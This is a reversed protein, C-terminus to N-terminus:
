EQDHEVASLARDAASQAQNLRQCGDLDRDADPNVAALHLQGCFVDAAHSDMGGSADQIFRAGALHENRAGRPIKGLASGSQCELRPTSVAKPVQLPLVVTRRPMMWLTPAM